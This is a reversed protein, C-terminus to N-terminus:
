ESFHPGDHHKRLGAGWSGEGEYWVLSFAPRDRNIFNMVDQSSPGSCDNFGQRRRGSLPGLIVKM